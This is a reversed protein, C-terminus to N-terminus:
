QAQGAAPQGVGTAVRFGRAVLRFGSIFLLVAAVACVVVVGPFTTLSPGIQSFSMSSGQGVLSVLSSVAVFPAVGVTLALAGGHRQM